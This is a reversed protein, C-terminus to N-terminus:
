FRDYELETPNLVPPDGRRLNGFKKKCFSYFEKRTKDIEEGTDLNKLFYRDHIRRKGKVMYLVKYGFACIFSISTETKHSITEVEDKKM